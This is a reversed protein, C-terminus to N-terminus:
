AKELRTLKVKNRHHEDMATELEGKIDTM